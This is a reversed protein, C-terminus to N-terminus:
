RRWTPARRTSSRWRARRYRRWRRPGAAAILRDLTEMYLYNFLVCLGLMIKCLCMYKLARLAQEPQRVSDFGELAEYFYSYATKFDREDAMHLVGSQMDLTAQMKPAIYISNATTRASVLASRAKTLNNLM